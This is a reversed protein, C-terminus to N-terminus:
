SEDKQQLRPVLLTQGHLLAEVRPIKALCAVTALPPHHLRNALLRRADMVDVIINPTVTSIGSNLTHLLSYFSLHFNIFGMAIGYPGPLAEADLVCSLLM